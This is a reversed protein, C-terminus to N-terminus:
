TELVNLACSRIQSGYKRYSHPGGGATLCRTKCSFALLYENGCDECRVRAQGRDEWFPAFGNELNGCELFKFMVDRIVPRWYGYTKEYKEGYCREFIDYYDEVLQFLPSNRHNRPRYIGTACEGM